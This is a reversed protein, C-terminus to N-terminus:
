QHEFRYVPALHVTLNGGADTPDGDIHAMDLTPINSSVTWQLANSTAPQMLDFWQTTLTLGFIWPDAPLRVYTVAKGEVYLPSNVPTFFGINTALVMTPDLYVNCGPAPIGFASLPIPAANAAGFACIGFGNPAGYAWFKGNAGPILTHKDAGSWRRSAGGYLGCGAGIETVAGPIDEWVADSVWWDSTQGLIPSGVIDLCLTGGTYTFPTQFVVRIKNSNTWPIPLSTNPPSTPAFVQGSFVTVPSPGVNNQFVESATLPTNPSHSLTVVWDATAGQFADAFAARRLELALLQHGVLNTLHSAGILTQQRLHAGTGAVWELSNAEAAEYAAPITQFQPAQSIAAAALATAAVLPRILM